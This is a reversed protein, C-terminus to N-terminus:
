NRAYERRPALLQSIFDDALEANLRLQTNNPLKIVYNSSGVSYVIEFINGSRKDVIYVTDIGRAQNDTLLIYNEKIDETLEVILPHERKSFLIKTEM